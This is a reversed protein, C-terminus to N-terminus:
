VSAAGDHGEPLLVLVDVDSHPFLAGRGYGGVAVLAAEADDVTASWLQRLVEDVLHANQELNYAPDPKRLYRAKLRERQAKLWARLEVAKAPEAVAADNTRPAATNV